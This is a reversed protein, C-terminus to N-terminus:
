ELSSFDGLPRTFTAAAPQMVLTNATDHISGSTAAIPLSVVFLVSGFITALFCAPRALVVDGTVMLADESARSSTVGGWSMLCIFVITMLKTKM